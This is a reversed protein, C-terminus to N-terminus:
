RNIERETLSTFKSATEKDAKKETETEKKM